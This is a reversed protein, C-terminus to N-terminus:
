RAAVPSELRAIRRDHDDVRAATDIALSEFDARERGLAEGLSKVQILWKKPGVVHVLDPWRLNGKEDRASRWGKLLRRFSDIHKGALKAAHSMPILPPLGASM